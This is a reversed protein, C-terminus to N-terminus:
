TTRSMRPSDATAVMVAHGCRLVGDNGPERGMEGRHGLLEGLDRGIQGFQIADEGFVRGGRPLHRV